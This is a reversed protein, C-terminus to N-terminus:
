IRQLAQEVVAPKHGATELLSIWVSAAIPLGGRRRLAQNMVPRKIFRAAVRSGIGHAIVVARQQIRRPAPSTPAQASQRRCDAEVSAVIQNPRRGVITSFWYVNANQSFTVPSPPNLGRIM